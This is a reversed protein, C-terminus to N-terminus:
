NNPFIYGFMKYMINTELIEDTQASTLLNNTMEDNFMSYKKGRLNMKEHFYKTIGSASSYKNHRIGMTKINLTKAMEGFTIDLLYQFGAMETVGGTFIMYTIERKTLKTAQQRIQRFMDELRAEVVKSIHEKNISMIQGERNKVDIHDNEDAYRVNCIAFKEKLFKATASSVNYIYKIDKDINKSGFPLIEQRIMIGKNYIAIITTDSGINIVAGVKTDLKNTKAEYYDGTSNFAIDIVNINADKCLDFYNTLENKSVTGVVAKVDLTEGELHRPNKVGGNDDVHFSIPVVTVLERQNPIKGLVADQLCNIIDDSSVTNNEGTINSTGSVISLDLDKGSVSLIAETLPNNIMEEIEAKAKNLSNLALSADYILGNKIGRSKISSSALVRFKKNIVENVVIKINDSGIDIGTYVQKM